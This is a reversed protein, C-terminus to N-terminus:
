DPAAAFFLSRQPEGFMHTVYGAASMKMAMGTVNRPIGAMGSVPDEPNYIEPGANLPNVHFPNRGSQIASRTPSCYKYVYHRDLEIGEAVLENMRPTRVDADSIGAPDRHWGADAWGYDDLLIFAIHPQKGAVPKKRVEKAFWGGNSSADYPGAPLRYDDTKLAPASLQNHHNIAGGIEAMKALLLPFEVAGRNYQINASGNEHVCLGRKVDAYSGHSKNVCQSTWHWPNFIQLRDDETSWNWYGELKQM